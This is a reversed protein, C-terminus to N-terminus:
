GSHRREVLPKVPTPVPREELTTASPHPENAAMNELWNELNTTMYISEPMIGLQRRQEDTMVLGQYIGQDELLGEGQEEWQESKDGEPHARGESIAGSRRRIGTPLTSKFSFAPENNELNGTIFLKDDDETNPDNQSPFKQRIEKFVKESESLSSDSPSSFSEPILEERPDHNMLEYAKAYGVIDDNERGGSDPVLNAKQPPFSRLIILDDDGGNTQQVQRVVRPEADLSTPYEYDEQNSDQQIEDIEDYDGNDRLEPPDMTYKVTFYLARVLTIVRRTATPQMCMHDIMDAHVRCCGRGGM